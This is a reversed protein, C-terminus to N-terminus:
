EESDSLTFKSADPYKVTFDGNSGEAKSENGTADLIEFAVGRETPVYDIFVRYSNLTITGVSVKARLRFKITEPRTTGKENYNTPFAHMRTELPFVYTGAPLTQIIESHKADKVDTYGFDPHNTQYLIPNMAVEAPESLTFKVHGSAKVVGHRRVSVDFQTHPVNNYVTSALTLPNTTSGDFKILKSFPESHEIIDIKHNLRCARISVNGFFKLAERMEIDSRIGGYLGNHWEPNAVTMNHTVAGHMAVTPMATTGNVIRNGSKFLDDITDNFIHRFQPQYRPTFVIHEAEITTITHFDIFALANSHEAMTNVVHQTEIESFPATGKYYTAGEQFKEGTITDWLYGMNRNLDVGNANQRTQNAFSWPNIIPLVILEVNKRIYALQPNTRWDNVLHHIFRQLAFSATYENGHTGASLIISKTPNPPSLVFKYVNYTDTTDRGVITTKFYDPDKLRLPEYLAEVFLDPNRETPVGNEGWSMSPQEPPNWFSLTDESINLDNHTSQILSAFDDGTPKKGTSFKERIANILNFELKNM